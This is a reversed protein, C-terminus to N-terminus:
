WEPGSQPHEAMMMVRDQSVGHVHANLLQALRRDHQDETLHEKQTAGNAAIQFQRLLAADQGALQPNEQMHQLLANYGNRLEDRPDMEGGVKIINHRDKGAGYAHDRAQQVEAMARQYEGAKRMAAHDVEGVPQHAEAHSVAVPIPEGKLRQILQHYPATVELDQRGHRHVLAQEVDAIIAAKTENPERVIQQDSM